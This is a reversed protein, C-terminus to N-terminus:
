HQIITFDAKNKSSLGGCALCSICTLKRGAEKSAPCQAEKVLRPEDAQRVRFTRWGMAKAQHYEELSDVSAMCWQKLYQNNDAKWQHTYGTLAQAGRAILKNIREPLAAPDGYAGNRVRMGSLLNPIHGENWVPYHPLARYVAGPAHHTKVYCGRGNAYRCDGCVAVDAGTKVAEKPHMDSRIIWIQAMPGTKSNRSNFTAVAAIPDGTLESPGHYLIVSTM